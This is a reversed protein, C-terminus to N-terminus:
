RWLTLDGKLLREKGDRTLYRIYYVYVGPNMPEGLFRGNWRLETVNEWRRMEGGWRNYIAAELILEVHDAPFIEWFDNAGDDNPSFSNPVYIHNQEEWRVSFLYNYVCGSSHTLELEISANEDYIVRTRLCTDCSFYSSPSWQVQWESADLGLDIWFPEGTLATTDEWGPLEFFDPLSPLDFRYEKGCSVDQFVIVWASDGELYVTSPSTDGNSWQQTFEGSLELRALVLPEECDLEIEPPSGFEVPEVIAVVTSDCSKSSSLEYIYIGPNNVWEGGVLVSDGACLTYEL